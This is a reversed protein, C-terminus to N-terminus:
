FDRVFRADPTRSRIAVYVERGSPERLVVGAREIRAIARVGVSDGAAVVNGGVIALRCTGAIMIGDVTPLPLRDIRAEPVLAVLGAPGPAPGPVSDPGGPDVRGMTAEPQLEPRAPVAERLVLRLGDPFIPLAPSSGSVQFYSWTACFALAALTPLAHLLTGSRVRTAHSAESGAAAPTSEHHAHVPVRNEGSSAVAAALHLSAVSDGFTAETVSPDLLETSDLTEVEIDMEEILLMALSRLNPLNGCAVVSTVTVGNVPRVLDIVHQLQPAIQSVLLYRDLLESRQGTFPTGLSWEFVRSCIVETGAVIAIAAGHSNLSLAAVATGGPADVQRARVVRALAQAPSLVSAIEFGAEILPALRAESDWAVVRARRSLDHWLRAEALKEVLAHGDDPWATPVIASAASVFRHSGVRGGRVLVCYNPGLEIGTVGSMDDIIALGWGREARGGPREFWRGFASAAVAIMVFSVFVVIIV